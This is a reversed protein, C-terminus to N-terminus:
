GDIQVGFAPDELLGADTILDVLEHEMRDINPNDTGVIQAAAKIAADLNILAQRENTTHM